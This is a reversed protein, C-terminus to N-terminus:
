WTRDGWHNHSCPGGQPKGNVRRWWRCMSCWAHEVMVALPAVLVAFM